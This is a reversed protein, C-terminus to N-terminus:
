HRAGLRKYAQNRPELHVADWGRVHRVMGGAELSSTGLTEDIDYDVPRGGAKQWFPVGEHRMFRKRPAGVTDDAEGEEIYCQWAEEPSRNPDGDDWAEDDEWDVPQSALAGALAGAARASPRVGSHLDDNLHELGPPRLSDAEFMRMAYDENDLEERRPDLMSTRRSLGGARVIAMRTEYFALNLRRVEDWFAVSSRAHGRQALADGELVSHADGESAYHRAAAELSGLVAQAAEAVHAAPVSRSALVQSAGRRVAAALFEINEPAVFQALVRVRFNRKPEAAGQLDAHPDADASLAAFRRGPPSILGAHKM